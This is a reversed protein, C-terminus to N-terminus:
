KSWMPDGAGSLAGVDDDSRMDVRAYILKQPQGTITEIYEALRRAGTFADRLERAHLYVDVRVEDAEQGPRHLRAILQEWVDGGSPPHVVLMRSYRQLNKGTGHAAISAVCPGKHTLIELSADPGGGFYRIRGHSAAEIAEGVATHHVWAIGATPKGDDDKVEDFWRLVDEVLWTSEWQPVPNPKFSDRVARWANQLEKGPGFADSLEGAEVANWVQLPSDLRPRNHAIVYRVFRNWNQRALLWPAPAPPVWRGWFGSGLECAIRWLNVGGDIEDGNPTQWTKRLTRFAEVVVPPAPPPHRECIVLSTGLADDSTGVVGPTEMLRRNFGRRVAKLLAAQADETEGYYGLRTVEPSSSWGPCLADVEAPDCFNLLVGPARRAFNDPMDDLAQAWSETQKFDRPLPALRPLALHLIHWYDRLTRRTVTGSM